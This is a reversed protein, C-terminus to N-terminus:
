VLPLGSCSVPAAVCRGSVFAVWGLGLGLRRAVVVRAVVGWCQMLPLGNCLLLPLGSCQL